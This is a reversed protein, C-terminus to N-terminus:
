WTGARTYGADVLVWASAGKWTIPKGDKQGPLLLDWEIRLAHKEDATKKAATDVRTITKAREDVIFKAGKPLPGRTSATGIQIAFMDDGNQPNLHAAPAIPTAGSSAPASYAFPTMLAEVHWTEVPNFLLGMHTVGLGPGYTDIAALEAANLAEGNPGGLDAANGHAVEDHRSTFPVAALAAWPGGRLYAEYATYLNQQRVRTRRGENVTIRRCGPLTAIKDILAKIRRAAYVQMYQEVGSLEGYHSLGVSEWTTM